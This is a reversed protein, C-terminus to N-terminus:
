AILLLYNQLDQYIQLITQGQNAPDEKLVKAFELRAEDLKGGRLLISALMRGSLRQEPEVEQWFRFAAIAKNMDGSEFALQAARRALRPDRTKKALDSSGEVALATHGRQTAIETLLYEYLLEPSLAINPLM